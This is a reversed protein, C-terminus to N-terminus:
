YGMQELLRALLPGNQPHLKADLGSQEILGANLENKASHCTEYLLIGGIQPDTDLARMFTENLERGQSIYSHAWVRKNQGAAYAKIQEGLAPRYHNHYYHKLTIEDALDVVQRWDVQVKPMAWFGLENFTASLRPAENAHRLHVQVTRGSQHLLGAAQELFQLYFEGRIAMIKLPDGAEKLIDIGHKERYRDVIPQNYGFQVYDSVMGSHNQLRFDVGDFGSAIYHEVQELWYDRVEPYAECPTGKLRQLKGRAIGFTNNTQMGSGWFGSGHWDFEFGMDAFQPMRGEELPLNRAPMQEAGWHHETPPKQAPTRVFGTVTAPVQGSTGYIRVMASPINYLQGRCILSVALYRVENDFGFGSLRITRCLRADTFAPLDNADRILRPSADSLDLTYAGSYRRYTGNDQSLWIEAQLDEASELNAPQFVAEQGPGVQDTFPECILDVEIRTIAADCTLDNESAPKRQVILDPRRALLTDLYIRDGGVTEHRGTDFLVPAGHPVTLGGGCEYPKYIAFAAMGQRHCEQLYVANPDGLANISEWAYNQCGPYPPMLCLWPNSFQPNGPNCTVFYVRDFGFSRLLAMEDRIRRRDHYGIALQPFIDVVPAVATQKATTKM